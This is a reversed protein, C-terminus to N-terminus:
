CRCLVSFRCKCYLGLIPFKYSNTIHVATVLIPIYTYTM